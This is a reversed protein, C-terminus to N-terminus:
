IGISSVCTLFSMFLFYAGERQGKPGEPSHTRRQPARHTGRPLQTCGEPSSHKCRPATHAEPSSHTCRLLQTRGEPSSHTGACTNMGSCAVVARSM